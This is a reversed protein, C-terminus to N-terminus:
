ICTYVHKCTTIFTHLSIHALDVLTPQIDIHMFTQTALFYHGASYKCLICKKNHVTLSLMNAKMLSFSFELKM